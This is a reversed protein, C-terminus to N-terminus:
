MNIYKITAETLICGDEYDRFPTNHYQMAIGPCFACVSASDCDKCKSVMSWTCSKWEKLVTSNEWIDIINAERVNGVVIPLSSCAFVEGYPNISISTFGAGCIRSSPIRKCVKDDRPMDLKQQIRPIVDLFIDKCVKLSVPSSDGDQKYKLVTGIQLSAGFNRAFDIVQPIEDYNMELMTTKFNVAVGLDRFKEAVAITREFSGPVQTFEDHKKADLSYISFHISRPHRRAIAVIKSDDCYLGNTYIDVVFGLKIAYDFIDLFDKRCFVDGGTLVLNLVNLQKLDLLVKKIEDLSLEERKDKCVYCHKCKENCQYTIEFLVSFLNNNDVIDQICHEELTATTKSIDILINEKKLLQVTEEVLAACENEDNGYKASLLTPIEKENYGLRIYDLIIGVTNNFNYVMQLLTNYLLTSEGYIRYYVYNPLRIM